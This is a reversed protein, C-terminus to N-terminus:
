LAIFKNDTVHMYLKDVPRYVFPSINHLIKLCYWEYKCLRKPNIFVLFKHKKLYQYNLERLM